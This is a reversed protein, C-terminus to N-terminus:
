CNRVFAVMKRQKPTNKTHGDWINLIELEFLFILLVVRTELSYKQKKHSHHWSNQDISESKIINTALLEFYLFYKHNPDSVDPVKEKYKAWGDYLSSRGAKFICMSQYLVSIQLQLSESLTDKINSLGNGTGDKQLNFWILTQKMWILM